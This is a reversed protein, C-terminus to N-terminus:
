KVVREKIWNVDVENKFPEIIRDWYNFINQWDIKMRLQKAQLAYGQSESIDSFINNHTGLVINKSIRAEKYKEELSLLKIEYKGSAGSQRMKSLDGKNLRVYKFEYLPHRVNIYMGDFMSFLGGLPQPMIKAPIKYRGEKDTVILKRGASGSARDAIGMDSTSWSIELIVNEIPQSTTADLVHGEITPTTAVPWGAFGTDIVILSLIIGFFFVFLAKYKM